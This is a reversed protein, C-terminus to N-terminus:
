VCAHMGVYMCEKAVASCGLADALIPDPVVFRLVKRMDNYILEMGDRYHPALLVVSGPRPSRQHRALVKRRIHLIWRDLHLPFSKTTM